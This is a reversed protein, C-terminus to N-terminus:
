GVASLHRAPVLYQATPMCVRPPLEDPGLDYPGVVDYKMNDDAQLPVTRAEHQKAGLVDLGALADLPSRVGGGGV